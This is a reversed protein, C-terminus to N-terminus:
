RRSGARTRPVWGFEKGMKKLYAMFADSDVYGKHRPSKDFELGSTLDPSDTRIREEFDKARPDGYAKAALYGAVLHAQLDFLQCAGSNTEIFGM